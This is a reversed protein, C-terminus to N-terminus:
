RPRERILRRMSDVLWMFQRLPKTIRWSRSAYVAALEDEVQALRSKAHVAEARAQAAETNAKGVAHAAEARAQALDAEHLAIRANAEDLERVAPLFARQARQYEQRPGDLAASVPDSRHALALGEAYVLGPLTQAGPADPQARAARDAELLREIEGSVAVAPIPWVIGLRAALRQATVRWDALFDEYAVFARRHARSHQEAELVRDLWVLEDRWGASPAAAHDLVIVLGPSVGLRALVENWFPMLRSAACDNFGFLARGEFHRGLLEVAEDCLARIEVRELWQPALPLADARDAGLAAFARADLMAVAADGTFDVGLLALM